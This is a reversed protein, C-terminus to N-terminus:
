NRAIHSFIVCKIIFEFNVVCNEIRVKALNKNEFKEVSTQNLNLHNWKVYPKSVKVLALLAKFPYM